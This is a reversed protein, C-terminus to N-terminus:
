KGILITKGGEEAFEKWVDGLSIDFLMKLCDTPDLAMLSLLRDRFLSYEFVFCDAFTIRGKKWLEYEVDPSVSVKEGASEIVTSMCKGGSSRIKLFAKGGKVGILVPVRSIAKNSLCYDAEPVRGMVISERLHWVAPEGFYTCSVGGGHGLDLKLKACIEGIPALDGHDECLFLLQALEKGKELEAVKGVVAAAEASLAVGATAAAPTGAIQETLTVPRKRDKEIEEANWFVKFIKFTGSKEKLPSTAIHRCYFDGGKERIADHTSESIYIEKPKALSEFRSAVNVVDGFIDHKEVIGTGTNLGVRLIIDVGGTKTRNYSDLGKQIDVAAAVGDCATEFYSMTGDGMTKVLTGRHKEILPFLIDNHKKILLRTALDGQTETIATSGKLDTFMITIRRTFKSRILNELREKQELLSELNVSGQGHDDHGKDKEDVM